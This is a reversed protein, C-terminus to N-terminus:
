SLKVVVASSRGNREEVIKYKVKQGEQLSEIGMKKLGSLSVFVDKSGDEPQIFGYGKKLDFWKVNGVSM